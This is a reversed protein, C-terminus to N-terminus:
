LECDLFLEVEEDSLFHGDAVWEKGFKEQLYRKRELPSHGVKDKLERYWDRLATDYFAGYSLNVHSDYMSKIIEDLFYLDNTDKTEEIKPKRLTTTEDVQTKTKKKIMNLGVM